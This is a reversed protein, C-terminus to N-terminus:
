RPAGASSTAGRATTLHAAATDPDVAIRDDRVFAWWLATLVALKLAVVVALHRALPNM